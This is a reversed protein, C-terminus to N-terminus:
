HSRPDRPAAALDTRLQTLQQSIQTLSANVHRITARRSTSVLLLTTMTALALVLVSVGILAAGNGIVYDLVAQVPRGERAAEYQLKPSVFLHFMVVLTLVGGVAV